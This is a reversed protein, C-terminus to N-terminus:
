PAPDAEALLGDVVREIVQDGRAGQWLLEGVWWARMYGRRDVVYVTPWVSNGWANWAHQDLDLLVPFDFGAKRAAEAVREPDREAETEPTQIGIIEVGKERLSARWRNYTRFNAQCNHCQFAYFHVLVVKGRLAAMRATRGDLWRGGEPFEPATPHLREFKSTDMRQGVAERWRTAQEPNLVRPLSTDEAKRLRQWGQLLVADPKGNTNAARARAAVEDTQAVIGALKDRQGPSLDLFAAVEERLLARGGQAQLELQRLRRVADHGLRRGVEETLRAELRAMAEHPDPKSAVRTRAWQADLDRLLADIWAVNTGTVSMERQGEISRAMNLLTRQIRTEGGPLPKFSIPEGSAGLGMARGLLAWALFILLHRVPTTLRAHPRMASSASPSGIKERGVDDSAGRQVRFDGAAFCGGHTLCAM